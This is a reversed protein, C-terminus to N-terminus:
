KVKMTYVGSWVKPKQESLEKCRNAMVKSPNDGYVKFIREFEEKADSFNGNFYKKLAEEYLKKIQLNMANFEMLEYILTPKRKGKVVVLDLERLLYSGKLKNKTYESIIIQTGYIKNLGELRSALNVTDGVVTYEFRFTSGMNGAIVYGTNIGIGINVSISFEENFRENLERLKRIMRLAATCARDAHNEVDVPANFIAMIADGIYKDLMGKEELIIKTMPDFYSNLFKVLVEPEISESLSTFNRIDSFLVSVERREGGLKLKEPNKTIIELIEPSVYSSFARRLYLIRLEYNVVNNGEKFLFILIYSLVPYFLSLDWNYIYLTYPIFIFPSLLLFHLTLRKRFSIKDSIFISISTLLILILNMLESTRLFSGQILNGLAVYHLYVGPTVPSLPTPRMDFIGTETIGVIVVKGKLSEKYRKFLIDSASVSRVKAYFNLKLFKNKYIPIEEKGIKLKEIGRESLVAEYDTNKYFRYAEFASTLFIHGKYAFMIPYNRYLGDPDPIANFSGYSLAVSMFQPLNLEVYPLQPLDVYDSKSIYRIFERDYLLNISEESYVKQFDTRFFYGLIVNGAERISEELYKDSKPNSPESFVIDLLILDADSLLRILDGIVKRDWPWRGVESVSKGDVKVLLINEPPLPSLNLFNRLKLKTDEIKLAIIEIGSFKQLYLFIVILPILFLLYNRNVQM